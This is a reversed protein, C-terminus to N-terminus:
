FNSKFEEELYSNLNKLGNIINVREPREVPNDNKYVVEVFLSQLMYTYVMRTDKLRPGLLIGKSKLLKVQKEIDMRKFLFRRLMLM